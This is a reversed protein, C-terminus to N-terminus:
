ERGSPEGREGYEETLRSEDETVGPEVEPVNNVRYPRGEDGFGGHRRAASRQAEDDPSEDELGTEEPQTSNSPMTAFSAVAPM